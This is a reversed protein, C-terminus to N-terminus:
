RGLTEDRLENELESLSLRATQIFKNACDVCYHFKDRDIRVVLIRDGKSLIHAKNARCSHRRGATSAQLARLLSREKGM